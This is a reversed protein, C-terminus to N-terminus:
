PLQGTEVIRAAIDRLKLNHTQSLRRLVSFAASADLGWREMVVGTAQGIVTRSTLATELQHQGISEAVAIAAHVAVIRATTRDDEDFADVNKGYLSLVGVPKAQVALPVAYACNLGVKESMQTGYEPWRPDEPLHPSYVPERTAYASLAPGAGLRFQQEVVPSIAEESACVTTARNDEFLSIAAADCTDIMDHAFQVARDVTTPISPRRAMELAADALLREFEQPDM